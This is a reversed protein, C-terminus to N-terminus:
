AAQRRLDPAASRAPHRCCRLLSPQGPRRSSVALHRLYCSPTPVRHLCGYLLITYMRAM